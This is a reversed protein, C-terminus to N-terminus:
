EFNYNKIIGVTKGNQSKAICELLKKFQEANYASDKTRKFVEFPIQKDSKIDLTELIKGKKQSTVFYVKDMTILVLTEPFEYGLLWIQLSITKQYSIEDDSTGTVFLLSDANGFEEQNNKWYNILTQVRKHFLKGELMM